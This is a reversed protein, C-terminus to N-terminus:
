RLLLGYDGLMNALETASTHALSEETFRGDATVEAVASPPPEFQEAERASDFAVQAVVLGALEGEFVDVTCPWGSVEADYRRWVLVDGPLRAFADYQAPTLQGLLTVRATRDSAARMEQWLVLEPGAGTALARPSISRRLNLRTGALYREEVLAASGTSLAPPLSPLLYRRERWLRTEIM